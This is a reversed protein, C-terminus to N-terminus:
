DASIGAKRIVPAWTTIEKKVFAESEAANMRLIRNGGRSLAATVSPTQMVQAMAGRLRELAPQPTGARAFIGFWAEMEMTAVGTENVTPLLPLDPSRAATSLAYAKVQGSDIYPKATAGNDFFLDVRGSLLDQYAPAAGRYPVHVIDAGTLAALAAGAIHQGTGVGGSAYTLKGPNARAFEVIEKLTTQPLDKRAVLAYGVSSVMGVPVFDVLPDYPLKKYLGVNAAINSFGGVLLTYGDAASKAATDTGVLTGAGTRNEVVVPQGLLEALRQAVVRGILDFGGGPPQPVIMRLTRNPFDQAMAGATCFVGAALMLAAAVRDITM